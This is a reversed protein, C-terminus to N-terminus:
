RTTLVATAESNGAVWEAEDASNSAYISVVDSWVEAYPM